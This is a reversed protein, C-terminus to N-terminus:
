RPLHLLESAVPCGARGATALVRDTRGEPGAVEDVTDYALVDPQGPDLHLHTTLADYLAGPLRRGVGVVLWVPASAERAARALAASGATAVFGSPGAAHAELLVLAARRAAAEPGRIRADVGADELRHVLRSGVRGSEVVAVREASALARGAIEPWGVVAITGGPLELSLLTGTPDSELEALAAYAEAVPDLACLVRSALWWLPGASPRREILRRCAIVLGPPDHAFGALAEASEMAALGVDAEPTRAVWRLREIPHM